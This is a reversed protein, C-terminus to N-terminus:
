LKAVQEEIRKRMTEFFNETCEDCGIDCNIDPKHNPYCAYPCHYEPINAKMLEVKLDVIMEKLEKISAKKTENSKDQENEKEEPFIKYVKEINYLPICMNQLYIENDEFGKDQEDTIDIITDIIVKGDDCTIEVKDGITCPNGDSDYLVRNDIYM